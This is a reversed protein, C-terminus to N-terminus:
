FEAVTRSTCPFVRECGGEEGFGRVRCHYLPVSSVLLCPQECGEQLPVITCRICPSAKQNSPPEAVKKKGKKKGLLCPLFSAVLVNKKGLVPMTPLLPGAGEKGGSDAHYSPPSPLSEGFFVKHGFPPPVRAVWPGKNRYPPPPGEWWIIKASSSGQYSRGRM